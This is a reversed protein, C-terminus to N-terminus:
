TLAHLPLKISLVLFNDQLKTDSFQLIRSSSRCVKIWALLGGCHLEDWLNQPTSISQLFFSECAGKLPTSTHALSASSLHCHTSLVKIILYSGIQDKQEHELKNSHLLLFFLLVRLM